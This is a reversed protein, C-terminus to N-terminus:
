VGAMWALEDITKTKSTQKLGAEAAIIAAKMVIEEEMKKAKSYDEWSNFGKEELYKTWKSKSYKVNTIYKGELNKGPNRSKREKNKRPGALLERYAEADSEWCASRLEPCHIYDDEQFWSDDGSKIANRLERIYVFYDKSGETYLDEVIDQTDKDVRAQFVDIQKVDAHCISCVLGEEGILLPVTESKVRYAESTLYKIEEKRENIWEIYKWLRTYNNKVKLLITTKTEENYTDPWSEIGLKICMLTLQSKVDYVARWAADECEKCHGNYESLSGYNLICEEKANTHPFVCTDMDETNRTIVIPYLKSGYNKVTSKNM